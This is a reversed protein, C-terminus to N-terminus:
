ISILSSDSGIFKHKFNFSFNFYNLPFLVALGTYCRHGYPIYKEIYYLM